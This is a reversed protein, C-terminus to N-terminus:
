IKDYKKNNFSPNLTFNYKYRSSVTSFQTKDNKHQFETKQENKLLKQKQRVRPYSKTSKSCKKTNSSRETQIIICYRLTM